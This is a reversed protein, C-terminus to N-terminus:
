DEGRARYFKDAMYEVRHKMENLAKNFMVLDHQSCNKIVHDTVDQTNCMFDSYLSQIWNNLEMLNNECRAFLENKSAM